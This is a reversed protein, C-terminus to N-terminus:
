LVLIERFGFRTLQNYFELQIDFYSLSLYVAIASCRWLSLQRIVPRVYAGSYQCAFLKLRILFVRFDDKFRLLPIQLFSRLFEDSVENVDKLFISYPSPLLWSRFSLYAAGVWIVFWHWIHCILTQLSGLSIGSDTLLSWLLWNSPVFSVLMGWLLTLLRSPNGVPLASTM